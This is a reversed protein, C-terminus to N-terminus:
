KEISRVNDESTEDDSEDQDLKSNLFSKRFSISFLALGVLIAMFVQNQWFANFNWTDIAM